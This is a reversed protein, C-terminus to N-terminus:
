DRNSRRGLPVGQRRWLGLLTLGRECTFYLWSYLAYGPQSLPRNQTAWYILLFNLAIDLLVHGIDFVHRRESVTTPIDARGNDTTGILDHSGCRRVIKAAPIATLTPAHLAIPSQNNIM